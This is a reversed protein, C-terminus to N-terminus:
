STVVERAVAGASEGLYEGLRLVEFAPGGRAALLSEVLASATDISTLCPIHREVAARRIEYGDRIPVGSTADATVWNSITNIVVDVRRDLIVDVVDPHGEGIKHVATVSVGAQSLARATGETAYISYGLDVLGSITPLADAKDADAITCLAAGRAPLRIGSAIFAKHLAAPLTRDIGMVEGTSKM